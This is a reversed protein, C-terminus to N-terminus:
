GIPGSRWLKGGVGSEGPSWAEMMTPDILYRPVWVPSDGSIGSIEMSKKPFVGSKQKHNDQRSTQVYISGELFYPKLAFPSSCKSKSKSKMACNKSEKKYDLIAPFHQQHHHHFCYSVIFHHLAFMHNTLVPTSKVVLNNVCCIYIYIWDFRRVTLNAHFVM